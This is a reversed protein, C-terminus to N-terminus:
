LADKRHAAIGAMIEAAVTLAGRRDVAGRATQSLARREDPADILRALAAAIRQTTAPDDTAGADIMAGAAAFADLQPRQNPAIEAAITPVGLAALEYLTQGAASVAIDAMAQMPRTVKPATVVRVTRQAGAAADHVADPGAFFPGVIATVDFPADIGDIAEIWEPMVGGPDAGGTTVLINRVRDRVPMLPVDWYEKRLITYAPGLLFRTDGRAAVYGAAPAHPGFSVVMQCDFAHPNLDDIAVTYFGADRIAGQMAGDTLYSDVVVGDCELRRAEAITTDADDRSGPAADTPGGAFGAEAIKAAADDDGHLLFFCLAGSRQLATALSLCRQLHGLGIGAGGDTRFLIRAAM